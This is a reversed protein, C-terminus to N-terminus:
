ADHGDSPAEQLAGQAEGGHASKQGSPEPTVTRRRRHDVEFALRWAGLAVAGGWLAGFAVDSPWHVGTAVRSLAILTAVPFVFASLKPWVLTAGVALAFANAAHLSPLSGVNAADVLMRVHASELSDYCPRVRAFFPKLVAAGLRDTLGVAAGMALLPIVSQRKLRWAILGAVVVGFAVGLARASFLVMLADFGPLSLGWHNVARLVASDISGPGM